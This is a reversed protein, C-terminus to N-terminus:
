GESCVYAVEDATGRARHRLLGLPTNGRMAVSLITSGEVAIAYLNYGGGALTMEFGTQECQLVRAVDQASRWSRIITDALVRNDAGGLRGVSAALQEGVTLLVAEAAIERALGRLAREIETRHRAVVKASITSQFVTEVEPSSASAESLEAVEVEPPAPEAFIELVPEEVVSAGGNLPAKLAAEIREPLEPLFFPKPLVGQYGIIDKVESALDEGILPIFILRMQSSIERLSQALAVAGMEELGMDLLALDFSQAQATDLAEDCTFAAEVAHQQRRLEETLLTSFAENPDVVLIQAM